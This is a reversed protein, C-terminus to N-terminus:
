EVASIWIKKIETLYSFIHSVDSKGPQLPVYLQMDDTYCYFDINHRCMIQGLPLMYVTLLLPGLISGQPVGCFLPACSSSAEGFRVSFSRNMRQVSLLHVLGSGCSQHWCIKESPQNCVTYCCGRLLLMYSACVCMSCVWLFSPIEPVSEYLGNTHGVFM